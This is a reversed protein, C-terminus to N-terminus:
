RTSIDSNDGIIQYGMKNLCNEIEDYSASASEYDVALQNKEPNVSVSTVGTISDLVRKIEKMDHKGNISEVTIYASENAM